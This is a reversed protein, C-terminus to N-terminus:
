VFSKPGPATQAEQLKKALSVKTNSLIDLEYERTLRMYRGLNQIGIKLVTHNLIAFKM